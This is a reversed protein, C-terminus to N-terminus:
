EHEQVLVATCGELRLARALALPPTALYGALDRLARGGHRPPAVFADDPSWAHPDRM